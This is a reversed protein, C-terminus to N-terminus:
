SCPGCTLPCWEALLKGKWTKTCRRHTRKSVWNCNKKPKNRFALNNSDEVSACGDSGTISIRVKADKGVISVLKLTVDSISGDFSEITYADGPKSLKSVKWSQDYTFPDKDKKVITICNEDEKTGSNVGAKRNFGVYYDGEVNQQKLLLVIFKREFGNVGFQFDNVGNLEYDQFDTNSWILPNVVTQQGKYWGLQYNKAPNFCMIPGDDMNYSFGMMGSRDGYESSGATGSHALNLNHGVEHVQTSVSSSWDDNYYSDFRNIYAYAVWNGTGPPIVFMVLDFQSSLDGYAKIAAENAERQFVDKNGKAPNVGVNLEVVGGIIKRGTITTGHFPEIILQGHSCAKYQSKLCVSDEFVDSRLQSISAAPEVGNNAIVRVVLAKLTGTSAVLYRGGQWQHRRTISILPDHRELVKVSATSAVSLLIKGNTDELIAKSAVLISIGSTAGQTELFDYHISNVEVMTPSNENLGVMTTQVSNDLECSWGEETIVQPEHPNTRAYSIYRTEKRFLACEIDILTQNRERNPYAQLSSNGLVSSPTPWQSSIPLPTGTSAQFMLGDFLIALFLKMTSNHQM